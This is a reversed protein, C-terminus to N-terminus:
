RRTAFSVINSDPFVPNINLATEVHPKYCRSKNRTFGVFDILKLQHLKKLTKSIAEPQYGVAAHIRPYSCIAYGVTNSYKEVIYGFINIDTRTLNRMNEARRLLKFKDLLSIRNM